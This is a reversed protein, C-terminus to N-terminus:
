VVHVIEKRRSGSEDFVLLVEMLDVMNDGVNLQQQRLGVLFLAPRRHGVVDAFVLSHFSALVISGLISVRERLFISAVRGVDCPIVLSFCDFVHHISCFLQIQVKCLTGCCGAIAEKIDVSLSAKGFNDLEEHVFLQVEVPFHELLM